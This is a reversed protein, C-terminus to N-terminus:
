AALVAVARDLWNVAAAQDHVNNVMFCFMVIAGTNTQVFGTLSRVDSLTGTKARAVGRGAAEEPDNFRTTLTGDVGAVPLGALVARLAPQDYATRVAAAMVAPPVTDQRSLGSGDTVNMGAAWLGNAQLFATQAAQAAAVSGGTGAAVSTHRLLVEAGFNDSVELIRRITDGLTLSQVAGLPAAGAAAREARVASVAIGRAVLLNKFVGAADRSTDAGMNGAPDIALASIPSVDYAYNEGWAPNWQPGAFLSDDYGLVVTTRGAQTLATAVQDALAAASAQGTLFPTKNTLFPDGGGVLVVGEPSSVVRTEFRHDEGLAALAGLATLVKWSSAPAAATDPSESAIVNGKLDTVVYSVTGVGTRDLAGLGAAVRASDPTAQTDPTSLGTDPAVPTPEPQVYATPDLTTPDSPWYGAASTWVVAGGALVAGALLGASVRTVIRSVM